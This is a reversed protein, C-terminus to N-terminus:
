FTFRRAYISQLIGLAIYTSLLSSGGYSMLILPVGTIPLLGAMMGVNIVVHMTIYVSIGAALLKGYPDRGKKVAEFAFFILLGYLSLLFLCGILGFQEAFAPFISDTFAYPLFRNGTFESQLFGSGTVKGLSIATQAATQHYTAPNLREYQYEKVFGTVYPKLEEHSLFGLFISLVFAVMLAAALTIPRLIRPSIGGFYFLVFSIPVLILATGLDPEKLILVFPILVILSAMFFTSFRHVIEGRKELFWSLAMVVILKAYESPQLDFPLFPFRYWRRVNHIPPTFYLGILMLLILLYFILTWERLKRYDLAVCVFYVFIGICVARLQSKVFPSITIAEPSSDPPLTTSLITLLGLLSLIIMVGFMKWHSRKIFSPEFM